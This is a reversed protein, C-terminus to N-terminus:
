RVFSDPNDQLASHAAQYAAVTGAGSSGDRVPAHAPPRSPPSLAILLSNGIPRRLLGHYSGERVSLYVMARSLLRCDRGRM